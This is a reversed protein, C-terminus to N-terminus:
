RLLASLVDVDYIMGLLEDKNGRVPIQGFNYQKMIEILETQQDPGFIRIINLFQKLESM